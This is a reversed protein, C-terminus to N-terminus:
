KVGYRIKLSTGTVRDYIELTARSDSSEPRVNVIRGDSLTGIKIRGRDEIDKLELKEFDEDAEPMGGPKEFQPSRDKTSRADPKLVPKAEKLIDKVAEEAKEKGKAKDENTAVEPIGDEKNEKTQQDTDINFYEYNHEANTFKEFLKITHDRIRVDDHVTSFSLNLRQKDDVLGYGDITEIDFFSTYQHVKNTNFYGDYNELCFGILAGIVVGGVLGIPGFYGGIRGGSCAGGFPVSFGITISWPLAVNHTLVFYKGVFFNHHKSVELVYVRLPKKALEVRTIPILGESDSKLVDGVKLQYAPKWSNNLPLYFEQAPTCLLDACSELGHDFGIRMYCNSESEGVARIYGSTCRNKKFCHCVIKKNKSVKKAIDSINKSGHWNKIPTDAGFGHGCLVGPVSLFIIM